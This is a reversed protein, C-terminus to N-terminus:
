FTRRPTKQGKEKLFSLWVEIDLRALRRSLAAGWAYLGRQRQESTLLRIRFTGDFRVFIRLLRPRRGGEYLQAHVDKYLAVPDPEGEAVPQLSRGHETLLAASQEERTALTRLHPERANRLVCRATLGRHPAAQTPLGHESFRTMASILLATDRGADASLLPIYDPPQDLSGHRGAKKLVAPAVELAHLRVQDPLLVKEPVGPVHDAFYRNGTARRALEHWQSTAIASQMRAVERSKHYAAEPGLLHRSGRIVEVALLFQVLELAFATAAQRAALDEDGHARQLSQAIRQREERPRRALAAHALETLDDYYTVRVVEVDQASVLLPLILEIDEHFEKITTSIRPILLALVLLGLVLCGAILAVLVRTDLLQTLLSSGLNIALSLLTSIVVVSVLLELARGQAARTEERLEPGGGGWESGM